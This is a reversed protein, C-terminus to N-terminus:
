RLFRKTLSIERGQAAQTSVGIEKALERYSKPPMSLFRGQFIVANKPKKKQLDQLFTGAESRL